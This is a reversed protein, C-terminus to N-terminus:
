AKVMVRQCASMVSLLQLQEDAGDCLAKDAIALASCVDARQHDKLNDAALTARQLELLVGQAQWASLTWVSSPNCVPSFPTQGSQNAKLHQPCSPHHQSACGPQQRTWGLSLCAARAAITHRHRQATCTGGMYILMCQLMNNVLCMAMGPIAVSELTVAPRLLDIGWQGVCSVCPGEGIRSRHSLAAPRVPWGEAISDLVASQIRAFAGSHCASVLEETVAQPVAGSVDLLTQPEM